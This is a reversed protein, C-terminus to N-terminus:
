CSSTLKKDVKRPLQRLLERTIQDFEIVKRPNVNSKKVVELM